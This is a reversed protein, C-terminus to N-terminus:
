FYYLLNVEIKYYYERSNELEKTCKELNRKLKKSNALEDQVAKKKRKIENKNQEREVELTSREAKLKKLDVQLKDVERKLRESQQKLVEMIDRNGKTVSAKEDRFEQVEKLLSRQQERLEALQQNIDKLEMEVSETKEKLRAQSIERIQKEMLSLRHASIDYETKLENHRDMKKKYEAQLAELEKAKIRKKEYEELTRKYEAYRTLISRNMNQFGGTLTGSPDFIDGELNVCRRRIKPDFAV